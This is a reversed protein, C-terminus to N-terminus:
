LESRFRFLIARLAAENVCCRPCTRIDRRDPLFFRWPTLGVFEHGNRHGKGQPYQRSDSDATNKWDQRRRRSQVGFEGPGHAEFSM